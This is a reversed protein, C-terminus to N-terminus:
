FDALKVLTQVTIAAREGPEIRSIHVQDTGIKEGLERQSLRAELRKMRIRDPLLM